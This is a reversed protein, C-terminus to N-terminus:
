SGKSVSGPYAALESLQKTSREGPPYQSCFSNCSKPLCKLTTQMHLDKAALCGVGCPLCSTAFTPKTALLSVINWQGDHWETNCRRSFVSLSKAMDLNTGYEPSPKARRNGEFYLGDLSFSYGPCVRLHADALRSRSIHFTARQEHKKSMGPVEPTCAPV